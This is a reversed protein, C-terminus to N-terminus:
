VVIFVRLRPQLTRIVNELRTSVFDPERYLEWFHKEWEVFLPESFLEHHWLPLDKFLKRLFLIDQFFVERLYEVLRLFRYGAISTELNQANTGQHEIALDIETQGYYRAYQVFLKTDCWTFPERDIHYRYFFHLALMLIPWELVEQNRMAGAHDVRGHQNTKCLLIVLVKCKTPGENELPLLYLNALEIERRNNGRLLMYNNLLFDLLGESNYGDFISGAGRDACQQRNREPANTSYYTPPQTRILRSGGCTQSPTWMSRCDILETQLFAILKPQTALQGDVFQREDCRETFRLQIPDYAQSTGKPRLAYKQRVTEMQTNHLFIENQLALDGGVAQLQPPAILSGITNNPM